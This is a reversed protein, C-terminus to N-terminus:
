IFILFFMSVQALSHLLNYADYLQERELQARSEAPQSESPLAESGDEPFPVIGGPSFKNNPISVSATSSLFCGLLIFIFCVRLAVM